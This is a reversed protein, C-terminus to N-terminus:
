NSNIRVTSFRGPATGTKVGFRGGSRLLYDVSHPIGDADKYRIEGLCYIGAKEESLLADAKLDWEPFTYSYSLFSGPAMTQKTGLVNPDIVIKSEDEIMAVVFKVRWTVEYAPTQGSNKINVIATVPSGTVNAVESHDPFVYARQPNEKIKPKDAESAFKQLELAGAVILFVAGPVGIIWITVTRNFETYGWVGVSVGIFMCGLAVLWSVVGM